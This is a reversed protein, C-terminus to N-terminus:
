QWTRGGDTTRFSQGAANTVTASQSDTAVISRLDGGNRMSVDAFRGGGVSLLVQGRDSVLWCVDPAPSAGATIREESAVRILSWTAGGDDTVEVSGPLIRWRRAPDPSVIELPAIASQNRQFGAVAPASAPPPPAVVPSASTVTVSEQLAAPPAADAQPREKARSTDARLQEPARQKASEANSATEPSEQPANSRPAMPAAPEAKVAQEAAPAQPPAVSVERQEPVVMWITIAAAAGALPALWKWWALTRPAPADTRLHSPADTSPAPLGRLSTAVLAQCRACTSVHSELKLVTTADLADDEWAALTEADLCAAAAPGVPQVKIEHKLADELIKDRSM